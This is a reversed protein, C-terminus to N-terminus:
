KVPRGRADFRRVITPRLSGGIRDWVSVTCEDPDMTLIEKHVVVLRNDEVRYRDAPSGCDGVGILYHASIERKGPDFDISNAKWCTGHWETGLCNESLAHTLANEIFRGSPPDYVWYSKSGWKGAFETLVSFDLYGDFNIDHAAFTAGFDIPQWAMVPLVQLQKGDECAAVEM